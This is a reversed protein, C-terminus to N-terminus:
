TFTMKIAMILTHHAEWFSPIRFGFPTWDKPFFSLVFHSHSIPLLNVVSFEGPCCGRTWMGDRPMHLSTIRKHEYRLPHHRIGIILSPLLTAPLPPEKGIKKDWLIYQKHFFYLSVSAPRRSVYGLVIITGLNILSPKCRSKGIKYETTTSSRTWWTQIRFIANKLQTNLMSQSYLTVRIFVHWERKKHRLSQCGVSWFFFFLKPMQDETLILNERVSQTPLVVWVQRRRTHAM